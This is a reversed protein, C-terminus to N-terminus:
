GLVEEMGVVRVLLPLIGGRLEVGAVDVGLPVVLIGGDATLGIRMIGMFLEPNLLELPPRPIGPIPTPIPGPIPPTGGIPIFEITIPVPIGIDPLEILPIGTFLMPAPIPLLPPILM